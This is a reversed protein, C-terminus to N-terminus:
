PLKGALVMRSLVITQPLWTLQDDFEGGQAAKASVLPRSVFNTCEGVTTCHFKASNSDEDINTSSEDAIDTGHETRGWNKPGYSIVVVVLLVTGWGALLRKTREAPTPRRLEREYVSVM